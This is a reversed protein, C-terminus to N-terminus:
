FGGDPLDNAALSHECPLLSMSDLSSLSSLVRGKLAEHEMWRLAWPGSERWEWSFPRQLWSYRVGGWGLWDQPKLRHKWVNYTFGQMVSSDRRDKTNLFLTESWLEFQGQIQLRAEGTSPNYVLVCMMRGPGPKWECVDGPFCSIPLFYFPLPGVDEVTAELSLHATALEDSDRTSFSIALPMLGLITLSDSCSTGWSNIQLWCHAPTLVWCRGPLRQM